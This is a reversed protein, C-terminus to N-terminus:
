KNAIAYLKNETLLYLVGNVATPTARVASDMDNAALQKKEKGHAFVYVIKDDNGLYVKGDVWFPSSWLPSKTNEEWYHEGTQADFCHLYGALEGVYVLGDRVAASYLWASQQAAQTGM